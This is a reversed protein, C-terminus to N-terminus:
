QELRGSTQTARKREESPALAFEQAFTRSFYYSDKFGVAYAVEAVTMRTTHLLQKAKELRFARIYHSAPRGTLAMLKRHLQTRSVGMHACLAQIGFDEEPYHKELCQQVDYLFRENLGKPPIPTLPGVPQAGYKYQLTTRLAILKKLEAMLERRHFPKALYADAGAELGAVRSSLDNKATLLIIPIHNTRFDTKLTRCLQLGNMKPMMIDSIIIDPLREVAVSLGQEGDYASLLEYSEQLFHRMYHIVDPNDEVVLLRFRRAAAPRSPLPIGSDVAEAASPSAASLAAQLPAERRVPLCLTFTSGKGARSEVAIQGRLIKVYEMVISLGIGAGEVPWEGVQYFREFIRGLHEPAMGIGTDSVTLSLCPGPELSTMHSPKDPLLLVELRVEGGSPTYKIANDLLNGVLHGLKEQDFDMIIEEPQCAFHLRIDKAEALSHFSELLYKLEVAIDGQAYHATLHESELRSLDLLQEVLRLLKQGNRRILHLANRSPTGLPEQLQDAMGLIVTLPTRFEHSINTFFRSRAVDLDRLKQAEVQRFRIREQVFMRIFAYMTLVSIILYLTFLVLNDAESIQVWAKLRPQLLAEIALTGLYLILLYRVKHPNPFVLAFFIGAMGVFVIGGSRLIGGTIIVGAFSFLIKFAELTLFFAETHQKVRLFVALLFIIFGSIVMMLYVLEDYGMLRYVIMAIFGLGATSGGVILLIKKSLMIEEDDGPAYLLQNLWLGWSQRSAQKM